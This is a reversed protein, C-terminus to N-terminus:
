ECELCILLINNFTAELNESESSISLNGSIKISDYNNGPIREYNTVTVFGDTAQITKEEKSNVYRVTARIPNNNIPFDGNNIFPFNDKDEDILRINLGEGTSYNVAILHAEITPSVNYDKVFQGQITDIGILPGGNFSMSREDSSPSNNMNESDSGCAVTVLLVTLIFFINYKKM